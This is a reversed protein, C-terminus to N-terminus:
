TSVSSQLWGANLAFHLAAKDPDPSVSGELSPPARVSNRQAPASHGTLQLDLDTERKHNLNHPRGRFKGM